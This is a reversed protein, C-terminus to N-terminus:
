SQGPRAWKRGPAFIRAKEDSQGRGGRQRERGEETQRERMRETEYQGRGGRQRQRGKETQRERKRETDTKDYQRRGGRQRQRGKETQRERM